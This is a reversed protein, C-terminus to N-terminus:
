NMPRHNRRIIARSKISLAIVLVEDSRNGYDACKINTKEKAAVQCGHQLVSARATDVTKKLFIDV